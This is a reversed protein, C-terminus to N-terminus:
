FEMYGFRDRKAERTVNGMVAGTANEHGEWGSDLGWAAASVKAGVNLGGVKFILTDLPYEPFITITAGQAGGLLFVEFISRDLVASITWTDTFTPSTSFKDTFYPNDFGRILARNLFFNSGSALFQGCNLTEGSISSLFTFNASATNSLTTSNLSTINMEFYVANSAVHSFDILLTGNDLSHNQALPTSPMVASMNYPARILDYGMRSVNALYNTRPLSMASQWGELPGTPVYNTYEWNSAWDISIQPKEGPIGYFFQGAYNDKAFDAIRAAGDVATFHTGNFVGPFYQSISGGLPAGPNISIYMIYITDIANKMPMEVMNPCEYQSGLLGHHSFNSAHTWNITNSSTFIGITYEQTYSVVMVWKQTPAHWIVKPDRFNLSGVELIPNGSYKTFTYGGDLSFALQQTQQYPTNLTYIAIVGNTQNPFFGSTNNVDIIASGTFIGETSNAPFLAIQQNEWHYLDRSTAHGWHQNGAITASPNDPVTLLGLAGSFPGRVNITFTFFVTPM